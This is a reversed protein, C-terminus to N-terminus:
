ANETEEAFMPEENSEDIPEEFAPPDGITM